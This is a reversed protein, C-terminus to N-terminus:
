DNMKKDNIKWDNQQANELLFQEINQLFIIKHLFIFKALKAKPANAFKVVNVFVMHM